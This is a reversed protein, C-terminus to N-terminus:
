NTKRKFFVSKNSIVIVIIALVSLLISLEAAKAFDGEYVSNYIALSLTETRGIINGGLMLSIGVEGLSRGFALLMGTTIGGRINPLIVKRMIAFKSKGLTRAAEVMATDLQKRSSQVSKVMFPLGVIFVATLVGWFTFIIKFDFTNYLFGGILGNKGLILILFFGLAMPPFIMPLTVIIEVIRRFISNKGTIYIGLPVGIIFQLILSIVSVELTLLFPQSTILEKM